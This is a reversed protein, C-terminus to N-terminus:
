QSPVDPVQPRVGSRRLSARLANRVIWSDPMSLPRALQTGLASGAALALGVLAAQTLAMGAQPSLPGEINRIAEFLGRYLSSGPMMSVIGTTVLAIPPIKLKRTALQAIFGVVFAGVAVAGPWSGILLMGYQYVAYGIAGLVACYPLARLGLQFGLAVGVAIVAAWLVQWASPLTWGATPSIYGEIGIRLGLWLTVTVGVAIGATQIVADYTRAGATILNGDLADRAAAVIGTGALLSVIGSAVIMSPSVQYFLPYLSHEHNSRIQMITLAIATPVTAGAAQIFFVSIQTRLLPVQVVYLLGGAIAALLMELVGGGLIAAVGSGLMMQGVCIVWHRYPPTQTRIRDLEVRAQDVTLRGSSIREILRSLSTLVTYNNVRQRVGRFGTIPEPRHAPQYSIIVSTFTVDVDMQLGYSSGVTLAFTTAESTLAGTQVGLEAARLALDVVAAAHADGVVGPQHVVTGRPPRRVWSEIRSKWSAEQQKSETM